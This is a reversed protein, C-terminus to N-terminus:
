YYFNTLSKEIFVYRDYVSQCSHLIQQHVRQETVTSRPLRDQYADLACRDIQSLMQRLRTVANDLDGQPSCISLYCM